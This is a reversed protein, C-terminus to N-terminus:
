YFEKQSMPKSFDHFDPDETPVKQRTSGPSTVVCGICLGLLLFAATGAAVPVWPIEIQECRGNHL